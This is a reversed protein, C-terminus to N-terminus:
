RSSFFRLPQISMTACAWPADHVGFTLGADDTNPLGLEGPVAADHVAALELHGGFGHEAGQGVGSKRGLVDVAKRGKGVVGVLRGQHLYGKAHGLQAPAGHDPASAPAARARGHRLGGRRDLCPHGLHHHDVAAQALALRAAEPAEALPARMAVEDMREAQERWRGHQGHDGLAVHVKM